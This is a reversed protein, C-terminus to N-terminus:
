KLGNWREMLEAKIENLRDIGELAQKTPKADANQLLTMIWLYKSQLGKVTENESERISGYLIDPNGPNRSGILAKLEDNKAKKMRTKLKAEITKSLAFLEQSTNYCVMSAAHLQNFDAGTIDVRPDLRVTIKQEQVEGNATLRVTFEGPQVFPGQPGHPTDYQVASIAFERQTGAPPTYRLDWIFRHHGPTTTVTQEPRIWYTPHRLTTSDIITPEDSSSYARVLNGSNDLIEIKVVTSATALSYDLTAGDPPNQGAPEEPPLPTDLFMNHRVRTALSPQFLYIKSASNALQRLPAINDLIWASRGHTAIVLDDDKIVLDRISTPPMNMKLSQWNSGDDISFYVERETGAFLLGPQKPDERVVNVPGVIHLGSVIKTWSKGSDHTKYIHPLMDDKRIANIAIYATEKSFHGADLQSVKDWSKLEPPTVDTWTKGGDNTIHVLGDDTGAWITNVDLPSGDVSYIVARQAMTKMEETAYDGVSSPVEPQKRTLDPSIIEWEQGGSNTKWLVNTGFMLLTPDAPHFLLPM